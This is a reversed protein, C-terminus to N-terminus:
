SRSRLLTVMDTFGGGLFGPNVIKHHTVEIGHAASIRLILELAEEPIVVRGGGTLYAYIGRPLSRNKSDPGIQRDDVIELAFAPDDWSLSGSTSRSSTDFHMGGATLVLRGTWPGQSARYRVWSVLFFVAGLAFLVASIGADVVSHYITFFYAAAGAFWIGLVVGASTRVLKGRRTRERDQTMLASCDFTVPLQPETDSPLAM